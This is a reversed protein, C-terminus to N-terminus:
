QYFFVGRHWCGTAINEANTLTVSLIKHPEVRSEPLRAFRRKMAFSKVSRSSAVVKVNTNGTAAIDFALAV